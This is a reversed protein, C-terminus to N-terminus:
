SFAALVTFRSRGKNPPKITAKALCEVVERTSIVDAFM